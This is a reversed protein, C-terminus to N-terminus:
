AATRIVLAPRRAGHTALAAVHGSGVEVDLLSVGDLGALLRAREFPASVELTAPDLSLGVGIAKL